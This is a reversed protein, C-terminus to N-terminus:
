VKTHPCSSLSTSETCHSRKNVVRRARVIRPLGAYDTLVALEHYGGLRQLLGLAYDGQDAGIEMFFWGGPRLFEKLGACIRAIATTGDDGGYLALAPEHLRVEPQLTPEVARAVYPPNTVVLDFSAAPRLGGYWDSNIFRVRGAVGHRAANQAAVGIAALSRDLSYVMAAPLELALVVPIVGSGCGLELITSAGGDRRVTALVAEILQETEPRPILVESSVFFPLSWFEQEGILYALPVRDHLRRDLLATVAAIRAPDLCRDRDLFLQARSAGLLHCLLFSVELEAEALGAARCRAVATQYLEALKMPM